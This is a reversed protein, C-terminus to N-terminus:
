TDFWKSFSNSVYYGDPHVIYVILRTHRDQPLDLTLNIAITKGFQLNFSDSEVPNWVKENGADFAMWVKYGEAITTGQNTVNVLIDLKRRNWSATWSHTIVPMPSLEYLYATTLHQDPCDGINYGEGTTELYYYQKDNLTWAAGYANVQIGVAMHSPPNILIVDYEMEHLLAATLISTDECDGGGYVLTEIPFRPYEDFPTSVNDYTYPLSQVFSIVLNVKDLETYDEQLAIINMENIITKLYDDDFPHTVYVSYDRTPIRELSSYFDSISEPISLSITWQKRSYSWSYEKHILSMTSRDPTLPIEGLALRYQEMLENYELLLKEYDGIADNKEDIAKNYNVLLDDYNKKFDSNDEPIESLRPNRIGVFIGLVSGFIVGIVLGQILKNM